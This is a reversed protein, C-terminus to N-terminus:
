KGYLVKDHDRGSFPDTAGEIPLAAIREIIELRRKHEAAEDEGRLPLPCPSPDRQAAVVVSVETGEPLSTGHELVVVGNEVRGAIVM